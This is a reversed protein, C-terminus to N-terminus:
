RGMCSNMEWQSIKDPWLWWASMMLWDRPPQQSCFGKGLFIIKFATCEQTWPLTHEELSLLGFQIYSATSDEKWFPFLNCSALLGIFNGRLFHGHPCLGGFYQSLNPLDCHKCKKHITETYKQTQGFGRYNRFSKFCGLWRCVRNVSQCSMQYWAKWLCDAASWSSMKHSHILSSRITWDWGKGEQIDPPVKRKSIASM